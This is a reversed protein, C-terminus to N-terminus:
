FFKIYYDQYETAFGLNYLEQFNKITLLKVNVDDICSQLYQYSAIDVYEKTMRNKHILFVYTM